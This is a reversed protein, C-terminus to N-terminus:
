VHRKKRGAATGGVFVLAYSAQDRATEKRMEAGKKPLPFLARFSSLPTKGEESDLGRNANAILGPEKNRSAATREKLKKNKSSIAFPPPKTVPCSM